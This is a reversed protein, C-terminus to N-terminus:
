IVSKDGWLMMVGIFVIVCARVCLLSCKIVLYLCNDFWSLLETLVLKWLFFSSVIREPLIMRKPFNKKKTQFQALRPRYRMSLQSSSLLLCSSPTQRITRLNDHQWQTAPSEMSSLLSAHARQWRWNPSSEVETVMLVLALPWHSASDMCWGILLSWPWECRTDDQDGNMTMMTMLTIARKNESACFMMIGTIVRSHRSTIILAKDPLKGTQHRDTMIVAPHAQWWWM